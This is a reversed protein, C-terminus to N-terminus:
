QRVQGKKVEAQWRWLGPKDSREAYRNVFGDPWHHPKSSNCDPNSRFSLSSRAALLLCIVSALAGITLRNM